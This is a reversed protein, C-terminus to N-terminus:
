TFDRQTATSESVAATHKQALLRKGKDTRVKIRHSTTPPFCKQNSRQYISASYTRFISACSKTRIM